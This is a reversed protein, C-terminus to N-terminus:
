EWDWDEEGREEEFPVRGDVDDDELSRSKSDEDYGIDSGVRYGFCPRSVKLAKNKAMKKKLKKEQSASMKSWDGMDSATDDEGAHELRVASAVGEGNRGEEDQAPAPTEVIAATEAPTKLAPIKKDWAIHRKWPNAPNSSAIPTQSAVPLASSPPHVDSVIAISPPRGWASNVPSQAPRAGWPNTPALKRANENEQKEEAGTVRAVEAAEAKVAEENASKLAALYREVKNTVANAAAEDGAKIRVGMEAAQHKAAAGADAQVYADAENQTTRKETEAGGEAETRSNAPGVVESTDAKLKSNNPTSVFNPESDTINLRSKVIAEIEGRGIGPRQVRVGERITVILIVDDVGLRRGEDKTLPQARECLAVFGPRLWSDITYIRGLVVKDVASAIPELRDIALARISAFSWKTSLRLVATWADVTKVECKHFDAPYLISLLADFESCEVDHLAIPGSADVAESLPRGLLLNAFHASDRQFFYRHVRYLTDGVLFTVNGDAFYFTQHKEYTQGSEAQSSQYKQEVAPTNQGSGWVIPPSLSVPNVNGNPSMIVVAPTDPSYLPSESLADFDETSTPSLSSVSIPTDPGPRGPLYIPLVDNLASYRVYSKLRVRATAGSRNKDSAAKNARASVDLDSRVRTCEKPGIHCRPDSGDRRTDM